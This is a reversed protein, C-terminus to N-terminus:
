IQFRIPHVLQVTNLQKIWNFVCLSLIAHLVNPGSSKQRIRTTRDGTESCNVIKFFCCRMESPIGGHDYNDQLSSSDVTHRPFNAISDIRM